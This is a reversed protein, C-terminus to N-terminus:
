EGRPHQDHGTLPVLRSSILACACDLPHLYPFSIPHQKHTALPSLPWHIYPGSGQRLPEVALARTFLYVRFTRTFQASSGKCQRIANTNPFGSSNPKKKRIRFQFQRDKARSHSFPPILQISPYWKDGEPLVRVLQTIRPRSNAKGMFSVRLADKCKM